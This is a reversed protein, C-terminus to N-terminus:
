IEDVHFCSTQFQDWSILLSPFYIRNKIYIEYLWRNVLGWRLSMGYLCIAPYPLKYIVIIWRSCLVDLSDIYIRNKYRDILWWVICKFLFETRQLSNMYSFSVMWEVLSNWLYLSCPSIFIRNWYLLFVNIEILPHWVFNWIEPSNMYIRCQFDYVMDVPSISLWPFRIFIWNYIRFHNSHSISILSHLLLSM